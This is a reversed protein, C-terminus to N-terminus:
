RGNNGGNNNQQIISGCFNDLALRVVQSESAHLKKKTAALAQAQDRAICTTIRIPFESEKPLKQSASIVPEADTPM